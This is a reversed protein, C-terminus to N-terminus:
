NFINFIMMVILFIILIVNEDYGDIAEIVYDDIIEVIYLHIFICIM